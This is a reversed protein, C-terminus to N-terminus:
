ATPAKVATVIGLVIDYNGDDDSASGDSLIVFSRDLETSINGTTTSPSGAIQLTFSGDSNVSYTGSFSGSGKSGDNDFTTHNISFSGSGNFDIYGYAVTAERDPAEVNEIELRRFWYRDNLDANTFGGAPNGKIAIVKNQYIISKVDLVGGLVMVLVLSTVLAFTLKRSM